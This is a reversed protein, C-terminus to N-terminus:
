EWADKSRVPNVANGEEKTFRNEIGGGGHFTHDYDNSFKATNEDSIETAAIVDQPNEGETVDYSHGTYVETVTVTAGVPIKDVEVTQQGAEKFNMSVVNSYVTVGNKKAVVDYVFIPNDKTEYTLLTKEIAIKGYNFDRRAKTIIDVTPTTENPIWPGFDFATGRSGDEKVKTPMSYLMPEFTYVWENTTVTVNGSNKEDAVPTTDGAKVPVALYLGAPLPDTATGFAAKASPTVKGSLIVETANKALVEYADEGDSTQKGELALKLLNQNDQDSLADILEWNYTDYSSDKEGVAIRYYAVEAYKGSKDENLELLDQGFVGYEDSTKQVTMKFPGINKEDDAKALGSGMPVIMVAALAVALMAPLLKRRKKNEKEKRM